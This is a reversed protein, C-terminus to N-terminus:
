KMGRAMRLYAMIFEDFDLAGTHNVDFYHFAAESKHELGPWSTNLLSAIYLKRFGDRDIIGYQNTYNLYDQRLREIDQVSWGTVSSVFIDNGYTTQSTIFPSSYPLGGQFTAQPQQQVFASNYQVPQQQQQKPYSYVLGQQPAVQATGKKKRKLSNGM